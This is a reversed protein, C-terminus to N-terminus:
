RSRIEATRISERSEISFKIRDVTCGKKMVEFEVIKDSYTNIEEIAARLAVRRLLVYLFVIWHLLGYVPEWVSSSGGSGRVPFPQNNGASQLLMLPKKYSSQLLYSTGM